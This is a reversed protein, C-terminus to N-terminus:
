RPSIVCLYYVYIRKQNKIFNIQNNKFILPRKEILLHKYNLFKLNKTKLIKGINKLFCNKQMIYHTHKAYNRPNLAYIM